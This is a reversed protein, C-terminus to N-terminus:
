KVAPKSVKESPKKSTEPTKEEKKGTKTSKNAYDTKYWGTGKLVFSTNSIVKQLKGGCKKCKKLPEDTIKQTIEFEYGCRNCVYEYIPM